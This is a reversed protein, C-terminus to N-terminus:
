GRRGEEARQPLAEEVVEEAIREVRLPEVADAGQEDDTRQDQQGGLTEAAALSRDLAGVQTVRHGDAGRLRQGEEGADAARADGDGGAQETAQLAVRGRAEREQHADGHDGAGADPLQALDDARGGPEM